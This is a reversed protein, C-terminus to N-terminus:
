SVFDESDEENEDFNDNKKEFATKGFGDPGIEDENGDIM